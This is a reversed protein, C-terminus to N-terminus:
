EGQKEIEETESDDEVESEEIAFDLFRYAISARFLVITNYITSKVEYFVRFSFAYYLLLGVSAMLSDLLLNSTLRADPPLIDMIILLVGSLGINIFFLFLVSEYYTISRKLFSTKDKDPVKALRKMYGDSLFALLISYVAFVCGFIALQIEILRGCIKSTLDVTEPAFGVKFAVVAALIISLLASFWNQSSPVIERLATIILLKASQTERFEEVTKFFVNKM